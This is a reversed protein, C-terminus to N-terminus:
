IEFTVSVGCGCKSTAQPSDIVVESGAIGMNKYDIKSGKLYPIAMEELVFTYEGLPQTYDQNAFYETITDWTYEYGACGGGTLGLKVAIAGQDRIVNTFHAEADPTINLLKNPDYTIPEM